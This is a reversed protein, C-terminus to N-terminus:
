RRQAHETLHNALDECLEYRAALEDLTTQLRGRADSYIAVFSPPIYIQSDASM